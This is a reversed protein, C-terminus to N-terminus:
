ATQALIDPELTRLLAALTAGRRGRKLSCEWVILVRWGAYSLAAQHRLDKAQNHTIKEHWFESRTKPLVFCPNGEHGHWFCGHVFIVTKLRPLVIDPQGPLDKRHLRYRYGNAHLFQRVILEPKTDRSRIRSMNYRRQEPNHVDAM